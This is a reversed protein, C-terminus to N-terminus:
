CRVGKAAHYLYVTKKRLILTNVLQLQKVVESPLASLDDAYVVLYLKSDEQALRCLEEKNAVFQVAGASYFEASFYPEYSWYVLKSNPAPHHQQWAQIVPKQTKGVWNPNVFFVVSAVLACVGAILAAYPIWFSKALPIAQRKWVETFLLSFAPLIPFVYPYIINGAFTFFVLPVLTTLLLYSMWGKDEKVLLLKTKFKLFWLGLVAMWPMLGVFAYLWIMGKPAHHAMGYKDGSWGPTLFRHLHEGVIFYNLFGPTRHEALLYWPLAILFMLLTGFIWPLRQWLPLWARRLLVWFFIPLGVLVLAIPGKALLGLGLGVFFLYSWLVSHEAVAFWFAVFALTTCFILAPETMVVGADLFFYFTGSLVLVAVMGATHGIQKKALHWVLALVAISLLLAPFRAAFENVGFLKMSVASLWTSLPPKAWFPIGYDHQLTVWNGTELMKRAIESYRAETTDNLPIILNAILRCFLLIILSCYAHNYFKKYAVLKDVILKM